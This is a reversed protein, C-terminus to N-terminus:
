GKLGFRNGTLRELARQAELREAVAGKPCAAPMEVHGGAVDAPREMACLGAIFPHTGDAGRREWEVVRRTHLCVSSLHLLCVRAIAELGSHLWHRHDTAYALGGSPPV